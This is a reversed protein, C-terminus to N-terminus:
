QLSPRMCKHSDLQALAPKSTTLRSSDNAVNAPANPVQNPPATNAGSQNLANQLIGPLAMGIGIGM